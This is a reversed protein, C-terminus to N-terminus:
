ENRHGSVADEIEEEEDSETPWVDDAWANAEENSILGVDFLYAWRQQERARQDHWDDCIVKRAGEKVPTEVGFSGIAFDCYGFGEPCDASATVVFRDYYPLWAVYYAVPWSYGPGSDAWNITLLHRPPLTVIKRHPIASINRFHRETVFAGDDTIASWGPLLREIRELVIYAIVADSLLYHYPEKTFGLRKAADEPSISRAHRPPKARFWDALVAHEDPTYLDVARRFM